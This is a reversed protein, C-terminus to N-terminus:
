GQAERDEAHVVGPGSPKEWWVIKSISMPAARGPALPAPHARRRRPGSRSRSTARAAPGTRAEARAARRVQPPPRHNEGHRGAGRRGARGLDGVEEGDGLALAEVLDDVSHEDALRRRAEAMAAGLEPQRVPDAAGVIATWTAASGAPPAERGLDLDGE